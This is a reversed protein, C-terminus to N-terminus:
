ALAGAEELTRRMAIVRYELANREKERQVKDAEVAEAEAQRRAEALEREAQIRAARADIERKSIIM